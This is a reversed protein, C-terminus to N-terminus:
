KNIKILYAIKRFKPGAKNKWMYPVWGGGLNAKAVFQEHLWTGNVATNNVKDLIGQLTLGVFSANAGHAVCPGEFDYVFVYFDGELKFEGSRTIKGFLTTANLDRLTEAQSHSILNFTNTIACAYSFGDDGGKCTDCRRARM